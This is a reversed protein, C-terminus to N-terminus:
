LFSILGASIVLLFEELSSDPSFFPLVVVCWFIFIGMNSFFVIWSALYHHRRNMCYTLIVCFISTFLIVVSLSIISSYLSSSSIFIFSMKIHARPSSATVLIVFVTLYRGLYFSYLGAINM